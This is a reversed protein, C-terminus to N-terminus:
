YDMKLRFFKATGTIPMTVMNSGNIIMPSPCATWASAAPNECSQLTFPVATVPWRLKIQGESNECIVQTDRYLLPIIQREFTSRSQSGVWKTRIFNQRDILFTTPISSVGGYASRMASSALVIDYNIAPTWTALFSQITSATEGTNPGLIVLGDARYKDQIAVFDPLEAKCPPCWTAWVNLLVVKGAYNTSHIMVGWPDPLSWAPAPKPTGLSVQLRVTGSAGGYGDVAIQYTQGPIVSFVVKSTLVAADDDDDNSAVLTLASVTTGTYVGLITDFSSGATSVTAEGTEPASWSWWVSKGGPYGDHAPEGPEKTAGANSGTASVNTGALVIRSAFMDNLPQAQVAIGLMAACVNLRIWFRKCTTM